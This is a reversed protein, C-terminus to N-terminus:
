RGINLIGSMVRYSYSVHAIALPRFNVQTTKRHMRVRAVGVLIMITTWPKIACSSRIRM